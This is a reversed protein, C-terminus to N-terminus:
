HNCLRCMSNFIDGWWNRRRCSYNNSIPLSKIDIWGYNNSSVIHVSTIDMKYWIEVYCSHFGVCDFKGYHFDLLSINIQKGAVATLVWPCTLVGCGTSVTVSSALTGSGAHIDVSSSSLQCCYPEPMIVLFIYAVHFTVAITKDRLHTGLTYIILRYLTVSLQFYGLFQLM